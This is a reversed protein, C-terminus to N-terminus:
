WDLGMYLESIVIDLFGTDLRWVIALIGEM